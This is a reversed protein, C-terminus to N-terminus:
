FPEHLLFTPNMTSSLHSILSSFSFPDGVALWPKSIVGTTSVATSKRRNQPCWGKFVVWLGMEDTGLHSEPKM